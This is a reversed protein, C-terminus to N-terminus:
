SSPVLPDTRDGEPCVGCASGVAFPRPVRRSLTMACIQAVVAPKRRGNHVGDRAAAPQSLRGTNVGVMGTSQLQFSLWTIWMDQKVGPQEVGDALHLGGGVVPQGVVLFVPRM